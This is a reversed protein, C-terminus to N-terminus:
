MLLIQPLLFGFSYFHEMKSDFSLLRHKVMYESLLHSSSAPVQLYSFQIANNNTVLFFFFFSSM